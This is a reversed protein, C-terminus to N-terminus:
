TKRALFKAEGREIFNIQAQMYWPISVQFQELILLREQFNKKEFLKRFLPELLFETYRNSEYANDIGLTSYGLSQLAKKQKLVQLKNQPYEKFEEPLNFTERMKESWTFKIDKVLQELDIEVLDELSKVQRLIAYSDEHLYLIYEKGKTTLRSWYLEFDPSLVLEQLAQPFEEMLKECKELNHKYELAQDLTLKSYEQIETITHKVQDKIIYDETVIGGAYGPRDYMQLLLSVEALIAHMKDQPKM